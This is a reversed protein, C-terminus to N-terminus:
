NWKLLGGRAFRLQLWAGLWVAFWLAAAVMAVLALLWSMLGVAAVLYLVVVIAVTVAGRILLARDVKRRWKTSPTGEHIETEQRRAQVNRAEVAPHIENCM